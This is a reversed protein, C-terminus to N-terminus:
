ELQAWVNEARLLGFLIPITLLGFFALLIKHGAVIAAVFLVTHTAALGYFGWRKRRLLAIFCTVILIATAGRVPSLWDPRGPLKERVLGAVAFLDWLVEIASMVLCIVLLRTLGRAKQKGESM